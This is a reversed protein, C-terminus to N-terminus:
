AQGNEVEKKEDDDFFEAACEESCFHWSRGDIWNWDKAKRVVHKRWDASLVKDCNECRERDEFEDWMHYLKAARTAREYVVGDYVEGGGWEDSPIWGSETYTLDAEADQLVEESKEDIMGHSAFEEWPLGHEECAERYLEEMEENSVFYGVLGKDMVAGAAEELADEFSGAWVLVHSTGIQGFWIDFLTERSDFRWPWNALLYREGREDKVERIQM